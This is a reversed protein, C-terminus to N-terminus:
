FRRDAPRLGYRDRSRQPLTRWLSFPRRYRSRAAWRSGMGCRRSATSAAASGGSAPPTTPSFASTSTPTAAPTSTTPTSLRSSTGTLSRRSQRAAQPSSGTAGQVRRRLARRQGAPWRRRPDLLRDEGAPPWGVKQRDGGAQAAEVAGTIAEMAATNGKPLLITVSYKPEGGGQPARPEFLNVYSLRVEGITVTNANM